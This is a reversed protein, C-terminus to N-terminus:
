EQEAHRQAGKCATRVKSCLALLPFAVCPSPCIDKVLFSSTLGLSVSLPRCIGTLLPSLTRCFDAISKCRSHHVSVGSVLWLLSIRLCWTPGDIEKRWECHLSGTPILAEAGREWCAPPLSHCHLIGLPFRLERQQHGVNGIPASVMNPYTWHKVQKM